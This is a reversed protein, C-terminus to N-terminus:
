VVSKRDTLRGARLEDVQALLNTCFYGCRLHTVDVDLADLAVETAALGDIEGAGHRLEAGVSSQLVVRRAGGERVAAVVAETARAYDTLPDESQAPPDVWYLAGVGEVAAVVEGPDRSDAQAVDVYPLLDAPLRSPDRALLLPRVGARVLMRALHRGVHGTPTTVAIRM